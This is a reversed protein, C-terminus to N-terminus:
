KGDPQPLSIDIYGEDRGDPGQTRPAPTVADPFPPNPYTGSPDFPAGTDVHIDISEFPAPPAPDAPWAGPTPAAATPDFAEFFECQIAAAIGAIHRSGDARIELATDVSAFQQVIRVLSWDTFLAQEVSYWLAEIADQAASATTALVAAKVELTCGTTFEPMGRNVSNKTEGSTRVVIVPLIGDPLSWDGPSQITVPTGRDTLAANALAGIAALRLQRRGLMPLAVPTLDRRM